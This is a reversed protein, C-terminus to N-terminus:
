LLPIRDTRELVARSLEATDPDAWHGDDIALVVPQRAALASLWTLVARPIDEEAAAGPSAPPVAQVLRGLAAGPGAGGPGRLLGLRGQLKTRTAVEPGGADLGGWAALAEAYPAYALRGYSRCHGALWAARKGTGEHLEALLRTKGIGAEGTLVLISSRGDVAAALAEGIAALEAARGRMVPRFPMTAAVRARVLRSPQVPESRGRVTVPEVPELDFRGALRRATAPGVLTTGPHALAALRAAVNTADGLAVQQREAAGVLGVATQG